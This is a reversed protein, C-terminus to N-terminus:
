SKRIPVVDLRFVDFADAVRVLFQSSGFGYIIDITGRERLTRMQRTNAVSRLLEEMTESTVDPGDIEIQRGQITLASRSDLKKPM